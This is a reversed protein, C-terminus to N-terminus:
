FMTENGLLNQMQIQNLTRCNRQSEKVTGYQGNGLEKVLSYFHKISFSADGKLELALDILIESHLNSKPEEAITKKFV